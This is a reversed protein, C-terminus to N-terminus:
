IAHKLARTKAPLLGYRRCIRRHRNWRVPDRLMELFAHSQELSRLDLASLGAYVVMPGTAGLTTALAPSDLFSSLLWCCGWLAAGTAATAFQFSWSEEFVLIPLFFKGTVVMVTCVTAFALLCILSKSALVMARSAGQFALFEASRDARECAIFNGSLLALLFQSFIVSPQWAFTLGNVPGFLIYPVLILLLGALLIVRSLRFDKWLLASM